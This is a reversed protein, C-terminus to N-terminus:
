AALANNWARYAFYILLATASGLIWGALVDSPWHVGLYVRSIGISVALISALVFFYTRMRKLTTQQALLGALTFYVLSSMMAHGSPFSSTYVFSGHPVLEPRPRDFGYKLSFSIILGFTIGILVTFAAKKRGSLYLFVCVSLTVFVLFGVGGLGTIDRMMEEVWRPGLPDSLDGATRFFLVVAEDIQATSNATVLSTLEVFSWLSLIIVFFIILLKTDEFTKKLIQNM